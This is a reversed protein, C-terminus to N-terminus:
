RSVDEDRYTAVILLPLEAVSHALFRLLDLSANDAWHLDELVLVTPSVATFRTVLARVAAFAQRQQEGPGIKRDSALTLTPTPTPAPAPAAVGMLHALPGLLNTNGMLRTLAAALAGRIVDAPQDMGVGIWSAIMQRYLGYPVSSAYSAGRGELWLPRRGDASGVWAIFRNRIERVLRTKGIGPEGTLVIAQGRGAVAARMAGDLLRLEAQRGVLPARGGLRPRREAATVRPVGLYSASVPEAGPVVTVDEGEGWGFLHATAARTAPGVLVTGPRAASQLAAAVSVVDGLATYEAKAGGGIPGVLAPGSEIGIRLGPGGAAGDGAGLVALARYATRLAREPDDEHAEPAGFMAQLGRGSVSSVTGGMAEVEAIVAALSGGVQDRLEELGLTGALGAPTAAVEAFLLTLPRREERLARGPADPGALGASSPPFPSSEAAHPGPSSATNAAIPPAATPSADPALAATYVRELSPSTRLGLREVAARCREYVRVAQEPRGSALYGTILAAAAEECAPDHDLCALWAATVGEPGARGAGQARDRARVLRAEQRLSNLRDSARDAWGAYPDGPLLDGDAALAASIADDRAQGPALALAARLCAAQQDADVVIQPSLWIHTLDASILTAGPAGLEALATRAMSL